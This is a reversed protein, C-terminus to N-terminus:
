VEVLERHRICVKVQSSLPLANKNQKGQRSKRSGETNKREKGLILPTLGEGLNTVPEPCTMAEGADM